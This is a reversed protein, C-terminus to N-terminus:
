LEFRMQTSQPATVVPQAAALVAAAAAAEEERAKSLTSPVKKFDEEITRRLGGQHLAAAPHYMPVVWTDGVKRGQGHIKGIPQGPFYRAMSYRGLTVIVKPKITEVSADATAPM